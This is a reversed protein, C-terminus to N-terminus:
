ELVLLLFTLASFKIPYRVGRIEGRFSQHVDLRVGLFIPEGKKFDDSNFEDILDALVL